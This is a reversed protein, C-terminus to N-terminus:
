FTRKYQSKTMAAVPLSIIVGLMINVTLFQLAIDIPRLSAIADIAQKLEEPKMGYIGMATKFDPNVAMENYRSILFGDDIFQFYVYQAAAMLLAAYGYTLLSYGFARRFSIRGDLVHDRFRRLRMTAFVISSMGAVMAALGLAPAHFEGILCAFSLIWLGGVLAGDIRSYAKLQEYEERTAM